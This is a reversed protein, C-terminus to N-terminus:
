KPLAPLVPQDQLPDDARQSPDDHPQNLSHLFTVPVDCHDGQLLLM